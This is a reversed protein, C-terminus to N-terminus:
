HNLNQYDYSILSCHDIVIIMFSISNLFEFWPIVSVWYGLCVEYGVGEYTAVM